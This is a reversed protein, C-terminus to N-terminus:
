LLPFAYLLFCIRNDAGSRFFRPLSRVFNRCVSIIVQNEHVQWSCHFGRPYETSDDIHIIHQCRSSRIKDDHLTRKSKGCRYEIIDPVHFINWELIDDEEPISQFFPGIHFNVLRVRIYHLFQVQGYKITRKRVQAAILFFDGM